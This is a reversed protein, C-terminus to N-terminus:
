ETTGQVTTNSHQKRPLGACAVGRNVQLKGALLDNETILMEREQGYLRVTKEAQLKDNSVEKYKAFWRENDKELAAIRASLRDM